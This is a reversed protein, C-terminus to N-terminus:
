KIRRIHATEMQLVDIKAEIRGLASVLRENVDNQVERADFLASLKEGHNNEIRIATNEVSSLRTKVDAMDKTLEGVQNVLKGVQNAILELLERDTM